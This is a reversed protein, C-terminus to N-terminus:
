VYATAAYSAAPFIEACDTTEAVVDARGPVLGDGVGDGLTDGLGLGDGTAVLVVVALGEGVGAGSVVGGVIDLMWAVADEVVATTVHVVFSADSECTSYPMSVAYPDAVVNFADSTILWVTLM